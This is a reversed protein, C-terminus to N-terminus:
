WAFRGVHEALGTATVTTVAALSRGARGHRHAGSRAATEADLGRAALAAIMGSLVDGTGITALEPGGATIVWRDRGMVFTPSGKLVVIAGTTGALDAAAGPSADAGAFAAFEGAHPTIITPATRAEVMAQTAARLGDADLVVTGSFGSLVGTVFEPPVDGLGPGLVVADFRESAALVASVDAGTFTHGGGIGATMVGPDMAAAQPQVGGPVLVRVAGAGFELASRGALMPAGALGVSGGVVLVSGASWKHDHRDRAPAPADADECLLWESREGSLGIDVVEIDGAADPGLGVLLGTKLAHFTVTKAARFVPGEATGDTGSLGSPLDVALVAAEHGIWPVVRDPLAGHFGAGFLADVILDCPEPGALDRVPVGAHAAAIAQARNVSSDGRPYGLCRVVVDVGRRRLHRAAVYGDGGNNGPGALVIVRSGYSAGMRAAAIAVGLGAREMLTSVPVGSGADLRSSEEPTIVPRM